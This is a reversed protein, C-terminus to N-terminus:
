HRNFRCFCHRGLFHCRFGESDLDSVSSHGDIDDPVCKGVTVGLDDVSSPTRAWDPTMMPPPSNLARESQNLNIIEKNQFIYEQKSITRPVEHFSASLDRGLYVVQCRDCNGVVVM